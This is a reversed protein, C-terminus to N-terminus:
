GLRRLANQKAQASKTIFWGIVGAFIAVVAMVGAFLPMNEQLGRTVSTVLGQQAGLTVVIMLVMIMAAAVLLGSYLGSSPDTAEVFEPAEMPVTPMSAAAAPASLDALGSSTEQSFGTGLGTGLGSGLGEVGGSSLAGSSLGSGSLGSGLSASGVGEMDIHDLVEAGLSTDDSERTLDLLGSGSGVGDLAIQDDLSPAIQTKAMPDAEEIELDEDDFISIGQATIVTDEKRPTAPAQAAVTDAEELSITDAGSEAAMAQIDDAKFVHKAGDQYMQLKGSNVLAMLGDQDLGLAQRSEEESLYMKAMTPHEKATEPPTLRGRRASTASGRAATGRSPLPKDTNFEDLQSDFRYTRAAMLRLKRDKPMYEYVCITKQEYDVLYLGYTQASIQGGVVLVPDTRTAPAAQAYASPMGTTLAVLLGGALASLVMLVAWRGSTWSSRGVKDASDSM